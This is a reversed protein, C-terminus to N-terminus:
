TRLRLREPPLPSRSSSGPGSAGKASEAAHPGARLPRGAVGRSASRARRLRSPSRELNSLDADGPALFTNYVLGLSYSYDSKMRGTVTWMWAMHMASNLLSFDALTANELVILKVSPIVPPELWGWRCM